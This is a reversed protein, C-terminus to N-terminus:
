KTCLAEAVHEPAIATKNRSPRTAKKSYIQLDNDDQLVVIKTGGLALLFRLNSPKPTM